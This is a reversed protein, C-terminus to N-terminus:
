KYEHDKIYNNWMEMAKNRHPTARNHIRAGHLEDAVCSYRRYYSDGSTLIYYMGSSFILRDPEVSGRSQFAADIVKAM